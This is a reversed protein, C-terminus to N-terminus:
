SAGAPAGAVCLYEGSGVEEVPNGDTSLVSYGLSALLSEVARVSHGLSELQAPHLSLFMTPRHMALTRRAGELVLYEAGEVDIKIVDPAVGHEECFEDLSVQRRDLEVFQDSARKTRRTLGGLGSGGKVHEYFRVSEKSADGIVLSYARINDIGNYKVHRVLYRYNSESPEFAFVEGGPALTRSVPLAYLGVHAGVDIFVSKGACAQICRAYGSNHREGFREWGRFYLDPALRFVGLGGLDVPLGRRGFAGSLLARVAPRLARSYIPRPLLRKALGKATEKLM